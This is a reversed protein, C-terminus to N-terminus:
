FSKVWHEELGPFKANNGAFFNHYPWIYTIITRYACGVEGHMEIRIVVVGSEVDFLEAVRLKKNFRSRIM